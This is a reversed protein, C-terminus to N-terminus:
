PRPSLLAAPPPYFSLCVQPFLTLATLQMSGCPIKSGAATTFVPFRAQEESRTSLPLFCVLSFMAAAILRKKAKSTM